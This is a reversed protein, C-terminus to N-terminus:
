ATATTAASLPHELDAAAQRVAGLAVSRSSCGHRSPAFTPTPGTRTAPPPSVRATLVGEPKFGPDIAVVKRFSAFLLAAGVLLMFAFAVQSAVLVRRLTRATRGSTGSRGEERFAQSLNM